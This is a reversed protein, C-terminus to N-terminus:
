AVFGDAGFVLATMHEKAIGLDRYVSKTSVFYKDALAETSCAKDGRIYKDMLMEYRRKELEDASSECYDRYVDLMTEIHKVMVVTRATSKYISKVRLDEEIEKNGMMSILEQLQEERELQRLDTVANDAGKKMMRYNRLLVDVNHLKERKKSPRGRGTHTTVRGEAEYGRVRCASIAKEVIRTIDSESLVFLRENGTYAEM